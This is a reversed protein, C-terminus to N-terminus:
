RCEEDVSYAFGIDTSFLKELLYFGFPELEKTVCSQDRANGHRCYEGPYSCEIRKPLLFVCVVAIFAAIRKGNTTMSPHVRPAYGAPSVRAGTVARSAERSGHCM